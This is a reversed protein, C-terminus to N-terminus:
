FDAGLYAPDIVRRVTTTFGDLTCSMDQRGCGPVFVPVRPPPNAPTLMQMERMQLLTQATYYVRVSYKGVATRWLEFVLAGGPPTDDSRGDLIWNLDLLAAVTAINTDHGVLFLARDEPHSPAGPIPKDTASQQLADLIHELLNSADARAIVPTRETYDVHATHLQMIERLKEENLCGWGLDAGKMGEAYELLLTEAMSSGVTLPGRLKAPDDHDNRKRESRADFISIRNPNTVPVRGCGALIRDLVQLQPRYAETLNSASGGIRGDIAALLARDPKGIGARMAHFLPDPDNEPLAHVAIPCAPFMGESLAKATERTREDSDAVLTVHPADACGEPSLLGEQAFYSRDYTGFIKMLEFGHPTLDGPPVDWKPWSTSSYKDYQGPNGTPSRVGHRSLYIVFKLQSNEVPAAPDNNQGLCHGALLVLCCALTLLRTMSLRLMGLSAKNQLIAFPHPM